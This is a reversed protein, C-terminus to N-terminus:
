EPALDCEIVQAEAYLNDRIARYVESESAGHEIVQDDMMLNLYDIMDNLAQRRSSAVAIQCFAVDNGIISVFMTPGHNSPLLVPDHQM